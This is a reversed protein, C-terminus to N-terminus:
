ASPTVSRLRLDDPLSFTFNFRSLTKFSINYEYTLPSQSSQGIRFEEPEVVWYDLDKINRWLMVVNRSSYTSGNSTVDDAKIDSYLRFINRLFIIDDHGTAEDAPIGSSNSFGNGLLTGLQNAQTQLQSGLIPIGSTNVNNGLIRTTTSKNPRLGTTGSVKIQKIISGYSEVYKGGNQTAQVNTAFPESFELVKPPV